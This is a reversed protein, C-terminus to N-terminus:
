LIGKLFKNFIIWKVKCLGIIKDVFGYLSGLYRFVFNLILIM